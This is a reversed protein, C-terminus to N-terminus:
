MSIFCLLCVSEQCGNVLVARKCQREVCVVSLIV